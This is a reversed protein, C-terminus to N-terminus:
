DEIERFYHTFLTGANSWQGKKLAEQLLMGLKYAASNSAVRNSHPKLIETDISSNGLVEKVRQALSDISAPHHAKGFTILFETFDQTVTESRQTDRICLHM